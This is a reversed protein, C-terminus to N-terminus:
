RRVAGEDASTVTREVAELAREVSELRSGLIKAATGSIRAVDAVAAAMAASGSVNGFAAADPATEALRALGTFAGSAAKATAACGSLAERQFKLV